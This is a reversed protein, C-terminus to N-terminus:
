QTLSLLKILHTPTYVTSKIVENRRCNLSVKMAVQTAWDTIAPERSLSSWCAACFVAGNHDECSHSLLAVLHARESPPVKSRNQLPLHYLSWKFAFFEGIEALWNWCVGTVSILFFFWVALPIFHMVAIMYIWIAIGELQGMLEAQQHNLQRM